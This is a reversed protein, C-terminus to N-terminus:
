MSLERLHKIQELVNGYKTTKVNNDNILSSFQLCDRVTEPKQTVRVPLPALALFHFDRVTSLFFFM